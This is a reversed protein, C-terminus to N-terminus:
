PTVSEAIADLQDAFRGYSHKRLIIAALVLVASDAAPGRQAKELATSIADRAADAMGTDTLAALLRLDRRTETTVEVQTKGRDAKTPSGSM